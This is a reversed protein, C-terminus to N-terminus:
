YFCHLTRTIVWFLSEEFVRDQGSEDGFTRLCNFWGTALEPQYGMCVLSWRIRWPAKVPYGPPLVKRVEEWSPVRIRPPRARQDEMQKQLDTFALSQWEDDNVTAPQGSAKEGAQKQRPPPPIELPAKTFKMEKPPMGDEAGPAVGLALVLRDQFNAYALLLVMAVLQKDGYGKKLQAVQVDTVTEAELSMRRAFDLALREPLPLRSWDGALGRITPEDVGARRLDAAAIAETVACRNAHAAVWRMKARLAPDLPSHARQVYDLELVAATTRPLAPALVRAWAPLAQDAGKEARPLHRWAEADDLIPLGNKTLVPSSPKQDLLTMILSQEMEGTKFGFPGRGSKYTIVGARDLVYLRDPMGSYAHGVRDDMGDVLLPM